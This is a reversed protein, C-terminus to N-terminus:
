VFKKELGPRFFTTGLSFIQFNLLIKARYTGSGKVKEPFNPFILSFEPINPFLLAGMGSMRVM